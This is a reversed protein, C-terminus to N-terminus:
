GLAEQSGRGSRHGGQGLHREEGWCRCPGLRQTVGGDRAHGLSLQSPSGPIRTDFRQPRRQVRHGSGRLSGSPILPAATGSCLRLGSPRPRAEGGGHASARRSMAPDSCARKSAGGFERCGTLTGVSRSSRRPPPAPQENDPPGILGSFFIVGQRPTRARSEARSGPAALDAGAADSAASQSPAPVTRVRSAQRAAAGPPGLRGTV